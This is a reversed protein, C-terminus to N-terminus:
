GDGFVGKRQEPDLLGLVGRVPIGLWKPRNAAEYAIEYAAWIRAHRASRTKNEPHFLTM